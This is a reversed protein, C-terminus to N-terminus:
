QCSDCSIAEAPDEVVSSAGTTTDVPTEETQVETPVGETVEEAPTEETPVEEAPTEETPVEEAPTEETPVETPVGETVEEKNLESRPVLGTYEETM